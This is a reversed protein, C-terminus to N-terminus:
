VTLHRTALPQVALGCKLVFREVGYSRNAERTIVFVIKSVRPPPDSKLHHLPATAASELGCPRRNMFESPLASDTDAGAVSIHTAAFDVRHALGSAVCTWEIV